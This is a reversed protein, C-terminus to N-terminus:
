EEEPACLVEGGLKLPQAQPNEQAQPKEAPADGVPAQETRGVDSPVEGPVGQRDCGTLVTGVAAIIAPYLPCLKKELPRIRM